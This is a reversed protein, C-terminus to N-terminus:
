PTATLPLRTCHLVFDDSLSENKAKSLLKNQEFGYLRFEYRTSPEFDISIVNYEKGAGKAVLPIPNLWQNVANGTRFGVASSHVKFGTVNPEALNTWKIQLLGNTCDAEIQISSPDLTFEAPEIQNAQAQNAAPVIIYVAIIILLLLHSALRLPLRNLPRNLQRNLQAYRSM